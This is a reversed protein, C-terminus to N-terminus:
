QCPTAEAQTIMAWVLPTTLQGLDNTVVLGGGNVMVTSTRQMLHGDQRWLSIITQVTAGNCTVTGITRVWPDPYANVIIQTDSDYPVEPTTGASDFDSPTIRPADNSPFTMSVGPISAHSPAGTHPPVLGTLQPTPVQIACGTGTCLLAIVPLIMCCQHRWNAGRMGGVRREDM